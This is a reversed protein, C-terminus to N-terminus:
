VPRSSYGSKLLRISVNEPVTALPDITHGVLDPLDFGGGDCCRGARLLFGELCDGVPEIEGLVLAKEPPDVVLGLPRSVTAALQSAIVLASSAALTKVLKASCM